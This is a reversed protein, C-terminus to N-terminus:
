SQTEQLILAARSLAFQSRVDSRQSSRPERQTPRVRKDKLIKGNQLEITGDIQLNNNDVIVCLNKLLVKIEAETYKNRM